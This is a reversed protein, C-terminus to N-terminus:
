LVPFITQSWGIPSPAPVAPTSVVSVPRVKLPSTGAVHHCKPGAVACRQPVLGDPPDSVGGDRILQVALLIQYHASATRQVRERQWLFSEGKLEISRGTLTSQWSQLRDGDNAAARRTRSSTICRDKRTARLSRWGRPWERATFVQAIGASTQRSFWTAIRIDWIEHTHENLCSTESM